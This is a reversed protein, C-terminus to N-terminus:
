RTAQGALTSRTKLWTTRRLRAQLDALRPDLPATRRVASTACRLREAVLPKDKTQREETACCLDIACCRWSFPHETPLDLPV